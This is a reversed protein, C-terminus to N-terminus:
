LVSDLVGKDVPGLVAVAMKSEDFIRNAMEMIGSATVNDIEDLLEGVTQYTDMQLEQRAIRNMRSTSSEMGLILHGQMQSKLKSLQSSTLKSRKMKRLEAVIIRLSQTLHKQDTGAYTGFVGSDRYFDDFSYVSYALGRDERIKQFLVSSMGGGLYSTLAIITPKEKAAYGPSPMGLCFHTQKNSDHVIMVDSPKSRFAEVAPEAKGPQFRFKKQVLKVLHAHSVSGAAAVVVSGARYNRALFSIVQARTLQTINNQSGMIPQGLPHKGWFAVSFIDHIRDSPNDLSEKIEECVVKKERGIHAPLLVSNCTLDALVDVATDIHKDLVRAYYCTQERATFGNLSGGLSELAAALERADRRKTGKFFMHEIFHCIGNEQSRENRSGVDIWVGISTSRVGPFAESIVRLGNPLTTKKYVSGNSAIEITRSM